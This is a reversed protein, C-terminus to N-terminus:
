FINKKRQKKKKKGNETDLPLEEGGSIQVMSKEILAKYRGKM